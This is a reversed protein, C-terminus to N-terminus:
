QLRSIKNTHINVGEFKLLTTPFLKKRCFSQGKKETIDHRDVHRIFVNKSIVKQEESVSAWKLSSECVVPQQKCTWVRTGLIFVM